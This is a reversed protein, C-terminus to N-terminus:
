TLITILHSIQNQNPQFKSETPVKPRIDHRRGVRGGPFFNKISDVKADHHNPPFAESWPLKFEKGPLGRDVKRNVFNTIHNVPPFPPSHNALQTQTLFNFLIDECSM